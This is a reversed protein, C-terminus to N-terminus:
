KTNHSKKKRICELTDYLMTDKAAVGFLEESTIQQMATKEEETANKYFSGVVRNEPHRARFQKSDGFFVSKFFEGSIKEVMDKKSVSKGM